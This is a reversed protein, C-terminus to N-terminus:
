RVEEDHNKDPGAPTIGALTTAAGATVRGAPRVAARPLGGAPRTGGTQNSVITLVRAHRRGHRRTTRTALRAIGPRNM